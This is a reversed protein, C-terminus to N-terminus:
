VSATLGCRDDLTVCTQRFSVILQAETAFASVLHLAQQGTMKSRRSAKGDIAVVTGEALAPLV